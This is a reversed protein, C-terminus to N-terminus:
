NPNKSEEVLKNSSFSQIQCLYVLGVAVAIGHGITNLIIGVGFGVDSGFIEEVVPRVALYTWLPLVAGILGLGVFYAWPVTNPVRAKSSYYAALLIAMGVFAIYLLRFIWQKAPEEQFSEIAPFALLSILLATGRVLWTQWRRNSWGATWLALMAGLVAPPLYFFSRSPTIDGQRVQPIFKAWEGLELGIFSLGAVPQPLWVLFYSLLITTFSIQILIQTNRSNLLAAKSVIRDM